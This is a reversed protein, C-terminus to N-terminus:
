GLEPDYIRGREEHWKRLANQMTELSSGVPVDPGYEGNHEMEKTVIMIMPVETKKFLKRFFM